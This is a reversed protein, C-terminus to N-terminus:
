ALRGVIILTLRHLFHFFFDLFYFHIAFLLYCYYKHNQNAEKREVYCFSTAYCVSQGKTLKKKNIFCPNLSKINESAKYRWFM